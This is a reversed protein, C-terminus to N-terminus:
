FEDLDKVDGIAENILIAMEEFSPIPINGAAALREGLATAVSEARAWYEGPIPIMYSDTNELLAKLDELAISPQTHYSRGDRIYEDQLSDLSPLFERELVM